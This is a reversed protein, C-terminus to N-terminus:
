QNIGNVPFLDDENFDFVNTLENLSNAFLNFVLRWNIQGSLSLDM